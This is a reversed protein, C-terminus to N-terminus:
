PKLYQIEGVSRVSPFEAEVLRNYERQAEDDEPSRMDAHTTVTGGIWHLRVRTPDFRGGRHNAPMIEVQDLYKRLHTRGDIGMPLKDLPTRMWSPQPLRELEARPRSLKETLEEIRKVLPAWLEAYMRDSLPSDVAYRDRTLEALTRENVELDREDAAIEDEIKRRKQEAQEVYLHGFERVNGIVYTDLADMTIGIGGCAKMGPGSQCVYYRYSNSKRSITKYSLRHGCTGCVALGTLLHANGKRKDSNSYRERANDLMRIIELHEEETFILPWPTGDANRGEILRGGYIRKGRLQPSRLSRTLSRPSWESGRSTRSGRENMRKTTERVSFTRLDEAAKRLHDREETIVEMVRVDRKGSSRLGYLRNGGPQPLGEGAEDKIAGSVRESTNKSEQAAQAVIFGALAQGIPTSMDLQETVSIVLAKANELAEIIPGLQRMQRTLRDTKWVIVGGFEGAEIRRMMANFEQREKAPKSATKGKEVIVPGVPLQRRELEETCLKAQRDLSPAKSDSKVDSLRTYIV